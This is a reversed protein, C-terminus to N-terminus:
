SAEKDPSNSDVFGNKRGWSVRPCLHVPRDKRRGEEFEQRQTHFAATARRHREQGNDCTECSFSARARTAAHELHVVGHGDCDACARPVIPAGHPVLPPVAVPGRPRDYQGAMLKSASDPKIIWDFNARWGRDGDGLCFATKAARKVVAEWYALDSKLRLRVEAKRKRADSIPLEVKPLGPGCHSNWIAALDEGRVKLQARPGASAPQAPPSTHTNEKRSSSSPPLLNAGAAEPQRGTAVPVPRNGTAKPRGGKKRGGKKGAEVCQFYWKFQEESGSVYIGGEVERALGCDILARPLGAKEWLDVPVPRKEPCWYQQAVRWATVVWGLAKVEDGVAICLRTFRGQPDKFLSDEINVRM